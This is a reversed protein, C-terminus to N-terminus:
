DRLTALLGSVCVCWTFVFCTLYKGYDNLIFLINYGCVILFTQEEQRDVSDRRCVAVSPITQDHLCIPCIHIESVRTDPM